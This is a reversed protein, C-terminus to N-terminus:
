CQLTVMWSFPMAVAVLAVLAPVGVLCLLLVLAKDARTM